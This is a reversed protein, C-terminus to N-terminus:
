KSRPDLAERLGDGLLTFALMLLGILLAPFIVLSPTSLVANYGDQVMNGLSPTPPKIGIGIFSLAAEAFIARPVSFAILVIIPSLTNPLMHHYALRWNSAGLARAALVFDREKLSLMQGRIVRAMDTWGVLGIALFISSVGNGIVAALLIIFLLDPFAYVVDTFRMSLNDGIRGGMGAAVGVALGIGLAVAMAGVGVALSTRLGYMARSLQDRGLADAGFPHDLSPGQQIVAYDQFTPSYPAIAPASVAIIAMVGIVAVGLLALKHRSLRQLADVWLGRQPPMAKPTTGPGPGSIRADM